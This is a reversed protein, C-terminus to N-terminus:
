LEAKNVFATTQFTHGPHERSVYHHALRHLEDYVLPTLRDLAQNDGSRWKQLLETVEHQSAAIRKGAPGAWFKAAFRVHISTRSVFKRQNAARRSFTVLSHQRTTIATPSYERTACFGCLIIM